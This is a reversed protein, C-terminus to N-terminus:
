QCFLFQLNASKGDLTQQDVATDAFLTGQEGSPGSSQSTNAESSVQPRGDIFETSGPTAIRPTQEHTDFEVGHDLLTTEDPTAPKSCIRLEGDVEFVTQYFKSGTHSRNTPPCSAIKGTSDEPSDTLSHTDSQTM